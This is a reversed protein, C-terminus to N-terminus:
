FNYQSSIDTHIRKCKIRSIPDVYKHYRRKDISVDVDYGIRHLIEKAPLGMELYKCIEHVEQETFINKSYDKDINYQSSIETYSLGRKIHSITTFLRNKENQELSDFDIGLNIIIDRHPMNQELCECIIRVDNEELLGRRERYDQFVYDKSIRKWTRRTYIAHFLTDPYVIGKSKLFTYIERRDIGDQMMQCVHRVDDNTLVSAPSDEGSPMLGMDYAATVNESGSVWHLNYISNNYKEGSFHDVEDKLPDPDFGFFEIMVIRHVSKTINGKDTALTILLYGRKGDDFQPIFRNTNTNFARGLDSIWYFPRVGPVSKETIPLWHEMAPQLDQAEFDYYFGNNM